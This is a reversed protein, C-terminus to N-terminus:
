EGKGDDASVNAVPSKTRDLPELGTKTDKLEKAMTKADKLEPIAFLTGDKLFCLGENAKKWAEWFDADVETIGFGGPTERDSLPRGDEDLAVRGGKLEVNVGNYDLVLGNPIKCGVAVTKKSSAM